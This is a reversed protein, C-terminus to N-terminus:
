KKKSKLYPIFYFVNIYVFMFVLYLPLYMGYGMGVIEQVENKPLFYFPDPDIKLVYVEIFSYAVLVAIGVLEKWIKNYKFDTLKYTIFCISATLFVSHTVISYLEEFLIYKKTFGVSPYAFFIVACLIGVIASINYMWKKNVITAIIVLWCAIACGPRPLLIRLVRNTTFEETVCFGVVRRVLGFLVLSAAYVFLVTRKTKDSKGRLLLSSGVVVAACIVMTLIHLLGYQGDVNQNPYTSCIWDIFGMNEGKFALINCEKEYNNFFYM